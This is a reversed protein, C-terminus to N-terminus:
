RTRWPNYTAPVDTAPILNDAHHYCGANTEDEIVHYHPIPNDRLYHPASMITGYCGANLSDEKPLIQVHLGYFEDIPGRTWPSDKAAEGTLPESDNIGRLNCKIRDTM